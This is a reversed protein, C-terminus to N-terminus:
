IKDLDQRIKYTKLRHCHKCMVQHNAIKLFVDLYKKAFKELADTKSWDWSKINAVAGMEVIHDVEMNHEKFKGKCAACQYRIVQKGTADTDHCKVSSILHRRLSSFRHFDRLRRIFLAADKRKREMTYAYRRLVMFDM